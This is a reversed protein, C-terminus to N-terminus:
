NYFKSPDGCKSWTSKSRVANIETSRDTQYTYQNFRPIKADYTNYTSIYHVQNFFLVWVDSFHKICDASGARFSTTTYGDNEM